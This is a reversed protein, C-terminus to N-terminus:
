QTKYQKYQTKANNGKHINIRKQKTQVLSLVVAM